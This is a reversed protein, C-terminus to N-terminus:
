VARERALVGRKGLEVPYLICCSGVKAFFFKMYEIIKVIHQNGNEMKGFAIIGFTVVVLAMKWEM